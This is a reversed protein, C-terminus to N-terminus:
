SAEFGTLLMVAASTLLLLGVAPAARQGHRGTTEYVMAGTLAVMWWLSAFGEAFMLLMLAWSSGLCALAHDLG